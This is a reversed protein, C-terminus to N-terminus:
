STGAPMGAWSPLGSRSHQVRRQRPISTTAVRQTRAAPVFPPYCVCGAWCVSRTSSPMLAIGVTFRFAAAAAAATAASAPDQHGRHGNQAPNVPNLTSLQGPQMGALAPAYDYYARNDATPALTPIFSFPGPM